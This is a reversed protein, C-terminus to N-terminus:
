SYVGHPVLQPEHAQSSLEGDAVSEPIDPAAGEGEGSQGSAPFCSGAFLCLM